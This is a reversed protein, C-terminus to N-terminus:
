GVIWRFVVSIGDLVGKILLDSLYIGIGFAFTSGIVAKTFTKLENSSTWSVKRLESKLEALFVFLSFKHKAIVEVTENTKSAMSLDLSM